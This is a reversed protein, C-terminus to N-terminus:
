RRLRDAIERLDDPDGPKRTFPIRFGDTAYRPLVHVHFHFVTQGALAGTAHFLNFGDPAITERMRAAVQQASTMVARGADPPLEDLGPYHDKPIVLTHGRTVPFIDLFALTTEDEYVKEAPAAGAVIACFICDATM